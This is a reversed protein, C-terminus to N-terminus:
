ESSRDAPLARRSVLLRCEHREFGGELWLAMVQKSIDGPEWRSLDLNAANELSIREIEPNNPSRGVRATVGSRHVATRSIMELTWFSRWVENDGDM